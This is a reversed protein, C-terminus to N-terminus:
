ASAQKRSTTSVYGPHSKRFDAMRPSSCQGNRSEQCADCYCQVEVNRLCGVQSCMPCHPRRYKSSINENSSCRSPPNPRCPKNRQRKCPLNCPHQNPTSEVTAETPAVDKNSEGHAISKRSETRCSNCSKTSETKKLGSPVDRTPPTQETVESKRSEVAQNTGSSGGRKLNSSESKVVTSVTSVDATSRNSASAKRQDRRAASRSRTMALKTTFTECTEREARRAAMRPSSCRPKGSSCQYCHCRCDLGPRLAEGFGCKECHPRLVEPEEPALLRRSRTSTRTGTVKTKSGAKGASDREPNEVQCYFSGTITTTPGKSARSSARSPM